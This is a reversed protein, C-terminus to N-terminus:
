FSQVLFLALSSQKVSSNPWISLFYIGVTGLNKLFYTLVIELENLSALMTRISFGFLFMVPFSLSININDNYVCFISFQIWLCLFSNYMILYFIGVIFSEVYLFWSISYVFMSNFSLFTIVVMELPMSFCTIFDWVREHYFCEFWFYFLDEGVQYVIVFCFGM